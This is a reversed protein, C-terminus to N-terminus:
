LGAVEREAQVEAAHGCPYPAPHGPFELVEIGAAQAKVMCDRTGRSDPFPFALCVDAGLDVMLQNRMPGAAKGWHGWDAAHREVTVTDPYFQAGWRDAIADAGTPCFGHVIVMRGTGVDSAILRQFYLARYIPARAEFGWDRSGTVLVRRPSGV